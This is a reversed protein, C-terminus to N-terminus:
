SDNSLTQYTWYTLYIIGGLLSYKYFLFINNMNVSSIMDLDEQTLPRGM